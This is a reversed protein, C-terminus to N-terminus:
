IPYKRKIGGYDRHKISEIIYETKERRGEEM